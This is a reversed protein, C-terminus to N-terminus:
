SFQPNVQFIETIMMRLITGGKYELLKTHMFGSQPIPDEDIERYHVMIECDDTIDTDMLM